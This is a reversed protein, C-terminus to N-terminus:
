FKAVSVSVAVCHPEILESQPLKAAVFSDLILITFSLFKGQKRNEHTQFNWYFSFRISKYGPCRIQACEATKQKGNRDANGEQMRPFVLVLLFWSSFNRQCNKRENMLKGSTSSTTTNTALGEGM